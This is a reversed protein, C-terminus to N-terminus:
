EADGNATNKNKLLLEKRERAEAVIGLRNGNQEVYTYLGVAEDSRGLKDYLRALRMCCYVTLRRARPDRRSLEAAAVYKERLGGYEGCSFRYADRLTQLHASFAGAMHPPFGAQAIENEIDRIRAPIEAHMREVHLAVTAYNIRFLIRTAPDLMPMERELRQMEALAEAYRGLADMGSAHEMELLFERRVGLRRRSLLFEVDALFAVPDCDTDLKVLAASHLATPIRNNVVTIIFISWGLLLLYIEAGVYQSYNLFGCLFAVPLVALLEFLFSYRYILRKM